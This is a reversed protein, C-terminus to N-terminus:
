RNLNYMRELMTWMEARTIPENPRLGDSIENKIVFDHGKLAWEPIELDDKMCYVYGAPYFVGNTVLQIFNAEPVKYVNYERGLYNDM